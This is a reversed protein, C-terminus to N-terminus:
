APLSSYYVFIFMGRLEYGLVEVKLPTAKGIAYLGVHIMKCCGFCQINRTHINIVRCLICEGTRLDRKATIYGATHFTALVVKQEFGLRLAKRLPHRIGTLQAQLREAM